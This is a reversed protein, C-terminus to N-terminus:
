EVRRREEMKMGIRRLKNDALDNKMRWTLKRPKDKDAHTVILIMYVTHRYICLKTM